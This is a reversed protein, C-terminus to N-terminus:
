CSGCPHWQKAERSTKGGKVITARCAAESARLFDVEAWEAAARAERAAEGLRKVPVLANGGAALEAAIRKCEAKHAPWHM